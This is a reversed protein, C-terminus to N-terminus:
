PAGGVNLHPGCVKKLVNLAALPSKTTNLLQAVKESELFTRYVAQQADSLPIWVIFDHKEKLEPPIPAADGTTDGDAPAMDAAGASM